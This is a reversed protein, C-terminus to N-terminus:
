SVLIVTVIKLTKGRMFDLFSKTMEDESDEYLFHESILRSHGIWLAGASAPTAVKATYSACHNQPM